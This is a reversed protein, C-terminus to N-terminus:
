TSPLGPKIAGPKFTVAFTFTAVEGRTGESVSVVRECAPLKELASRYIPILGVNNTQAEIRMTYIGEKTTASVRTFKIKDPVLNGEASLLLTIMEWPLLRKTALDDIRNALDQSKMIKEVAPRQGNLQALRVKQWANGGILAIEGLAFLGLAAACGLTVRWLIVDRRRGRRLAALNEKDRVDLAAASAATLRSVFDGSRFIIERDSRAPDAAPPASLDIVTMSGGVARLLEDRGRARDEDTAEPTLAQFLVHSPVPGTAWHVATLGEPSALLVTTAPPVDGGVLAAFAPLVLEVRDWAATQESTFRRRYSAFVFAHEAGPAWFWGYFLQALPFPSVGELALEVQAAAEGASAGAAVPVARTFFLADPLLAVRPPPPGARLADFLALKM